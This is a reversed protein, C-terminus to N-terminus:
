EWNYKIAQEMVDLAHRIKLVYSVTEDDAELINIEKVSEVFEERMKDIIKSIKSELERCQESKELEHNVDEDSNDYNNEDCNIEKNNSECVANISEKMSNGDYVNKDSNICYMGREKNIIKGALVLTRFSNSFVGETIEFDTHKKRLVEKIESANHEEKDTLIELIENRIISSKSM